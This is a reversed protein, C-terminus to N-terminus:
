LDGSFIELDLYQSVDLNFTGLLHERKRNYFYGVVKLVIEIPEAEDNNIM